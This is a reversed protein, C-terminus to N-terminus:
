RREHALEREIALVWERHLAILKRAYAHNLRLYRARRPVQDAHEDMEEVLAEIRDLEPLM